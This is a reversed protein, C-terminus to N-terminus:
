TENNIDLNPSTYDINKRYTIFIYEFCTYDANINIYKICNYVLDSSIKFHKSLLRERFPEFTSKRKKDTYIKEFVPLIKENLSNFLVRTFTELYLDFM